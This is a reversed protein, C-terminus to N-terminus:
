SIMEGACKAIRDVTCDKLKCTCNLVAKTTCGVELGYYKASWPLTCSCVSCNRTIRSGQTMMIYGSIGPGNYGIDLALYQDLPLMDGATDQIDQRIHASIRGGQAKWTRKITKLVRTKPIYGVTLLKPLRQLLKAFLKAFGADIVIPTVAIAILTLLLLRM